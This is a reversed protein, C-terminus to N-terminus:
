EKEKKLFRQLEYADIINGYITFIMGAGVVRKRTKVLALKRDACEAIATAIMHEPVRVTLFGEFLSKVIDRVFELNEQDDCYFLNDTYHGKIQHAQIIMNFEHRISSSVFVPNM